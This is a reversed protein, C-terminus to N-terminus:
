HAHGPLTQYARAFATLLSSHTLNTHNHLIIPVSATTCARTSGAGRGPPSKTCIPAFSGVGCGARVHPPTTRRAGSLPPNRGVQPFPTPASESVPHLPAIPCTRAPEQPATPFGGGWGLSALYAQRCGYFSSFVCVFPIPFRKWFRSSCRCNQSCIDV